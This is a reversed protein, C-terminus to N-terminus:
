QKWERVGQRLIALQEENAMGGGQEAARNLWPMLMADVAVVGSLVRRPLAPTAEARVCCAWRCAAARDIRTRHETASHQRSENTAWGCWSM